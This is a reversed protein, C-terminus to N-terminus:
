FTKDLTSFSPVYKLDRCLWFTSNGGHGLKCIIQYQNNLRDGIRAPFYSLGVYSARNEEEILADLPYCKFGVTAFPHLPSMEAVLQSEKSKFVRTVAKCWKSASSKAATKQTNPISETGDHQPAPQPTTSSRESEERDERRLVRIFSNSCRRFHRSLRRESDNPENSEDRTNAHPGQPLLGVTSTRIGSRPVGERHDRVARMMASIPLCQHNDAPHTAEDISQEVQVGRASSDQDQEQIPDLVEIHSQRKPGRPQTMKTSYRTLARLLLTFFPSTLFFLTLFYSLLDSFKHSHSSQTKHGAQQPQWPQPRHIRLQSPHPPNATLLQSHQHCVPKSYKSVSPLSCPHNSFPPM